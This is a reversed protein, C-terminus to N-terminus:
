PRILHGCAYAQGTGPLHLRCSKDLTVKLPQTRASVAALERCALERSGARVWPGRQESIGELLSPPPSSLLVSRPCSGVLASWLFPILEMKLICIGEVCSLSM